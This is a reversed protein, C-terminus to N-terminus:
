VPRVRSRQIGAALTPGASWGRRGHRALLHDAHLHRRARPLRGSRRRDGPGPRRWGRQLHAHRRGTRHGPVAPHAWKQAAPLNVWLQVGHFLGGNVVFEQPPLESHLIGSGATMWQTAGDTLLGGGGSSDKHEFAGDLMYTVTEFGRHPHWPAGKAEGPGYEFAGMHDLLLFPDALPLDMGPFPRRVVFGEGELQRHATVIRRVDRWDTAPEALPALRPLTLTDATVAPM